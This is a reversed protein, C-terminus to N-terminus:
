GINVTSISALMLKYAPCMSYFEAKREFFHFIFGHSVIM